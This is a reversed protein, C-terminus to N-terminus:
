SMLYFGLSKGLSETPAFQTGVLPPSLNRIILKKEILSHTANDLYFTVRLMDGIAMNDCSEIRLKMGNNSLDLVRMKGKGKPNGGVVHIYDGALNTTKRYAKRMELISKTVHGCPCKISLRLPAATAGLSSVDIVKTRQCKECRVITKNDATVYSSTTM